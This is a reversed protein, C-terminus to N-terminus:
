DWAPEDALSSKVVRAKLEYRDAVSKILEIFWDDAYPAVYVEKILFSLDVEYYKGIDCLHGTLGGVEPLEMILARVEQEYKFDLRKHLFAYLSNSEPIVHSDYNVYNVKGVFIDQSSILSQKFSNFDTRIAIGDTERSYSKWMAASEHLSEHWCSILIFPHWQRQFDRTKRFDDETMSRNFAEYFAQFNLDKNKTPYAGEFPDELKDVRVFFLANKELLSVFKTFDMYRWLVADDGPPNFAPHEEYM